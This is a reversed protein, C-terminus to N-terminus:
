EEIAVDSLEVEDATCFMTKKYKAPINKRTEQASTRRVTFARAYQEGLRERAQALAQQWTDRM